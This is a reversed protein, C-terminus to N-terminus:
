LKCALALTMSPLWLGSRLAWNSYMLAVTVAAKAACCGTIETSVFFFSSTPAYLFPPCAHSGPPSGPLDLHVVEHVGVEPAGIGVPYIVDAGVFGPHADARVMVRRREGHVRDPAPPKAHAALAIGVGPLQEDGGIPAAAISM